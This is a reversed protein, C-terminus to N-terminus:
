LFSKIQNSQRKWHFGVFYRKRESVRRDMTQAILDIFAIVMPKIAHGSWLGYVTGGYGGNVRENGTLVSRFDDVNSNMLPESRHITISYQPPPETDSMMRMLFFVSVSSSIEVMSLSVSRPSSYRWWLLFICRSILAPLINSLLSPCALSPLQWVRNSERVRERESVWLVINLNHRQFLKVNSSQM